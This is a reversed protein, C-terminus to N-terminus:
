LLELNPPGTQAAEPKGLALMHAQVQEADKAVADLSLYKMMHARAGELDGKAELIRGLVYEIRPYKSKPDIRILENASQEAGAVDKLEFRAVAQHMYIEPYNHKTDVKLM